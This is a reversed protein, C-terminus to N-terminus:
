EGAFDDGDEKKRRKEAFETSVAFKTNFRKRLEASERHVKRRQTIKRKRDRRKRKEV